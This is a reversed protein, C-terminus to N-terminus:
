LSRLANGIKRKRNTNSDAYQERRICALSRWLNRIDEAVLAETEVVTKEQLQAATVANDYRIRGALSVEAKERIRSEIRETVTPNIDWKNICVATPIEFHKTLSLIRELDHEGSTTPETVVLAMSAGNLSAIVPCGIGPPGDVIILEIGAAGATARAQSRVLSVLKGSNEAAIALKAHIMPGCRTESEMWEGCVSEHMDIAQVPCCQACVGCGECAISDVRYGASAPADASGSNLSVSLIADFRCEAQCVGCGICSENRIVAEYGAKFETRAKVKPSLILNLDAADVDCDAIAV